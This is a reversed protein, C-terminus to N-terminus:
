SRRSPSRTPRSTSAASTSSRTASSWNRPSRAPRSRTQRRCTAISSKSIMGPLVAKGNIPGGRRSAPRLYEGQLAFPGSFPGIIGIKITDATAASALGLSLALAAGLIRQDVHKRGRGARRRDTRDRLGTPETRCVPMNEAVAASGRSRVVYDFESAQM